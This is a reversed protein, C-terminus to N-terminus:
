PCEPKNDPSMKWHPHRLYDLGALLSAAGTLATLADNAQQHYVVDLLWLFQLATALKGLLRPPMRRIASVGHLGVAVLSGMGVCLDRAAILPFVWLPAVAEFALTVIVALVFAKDAIPDLVQGFTSTAGLMRSFAGDVLDTAAALIVIAVRWDEPAIPFAVALPFRALTLLNPLVWRLTAQLAPM